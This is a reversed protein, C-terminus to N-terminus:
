CADYRLIMSYAIVRIGTFLRRGHRGESQRPAPAISRGRHLMEERSAQPGASMRSAFGHSEVQSGTRGASTAPLRRVLLQGTPPAVQAISQRLSTSALAAFSFDRPPM